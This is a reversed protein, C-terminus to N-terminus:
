TQPGGAAVRGSISPTFRALCDQRRLRSKGISLGTALGVLALLAAGADGLGLQYAGLAGVAAGALPIGYVIMAARLVQEPALVVRVVDGVAVDLGHPIRAEVRRVRGAGSFIGAGCGRGEACRPCVAETDVEILALVGDSEGGGDRLLELIRGQPENM